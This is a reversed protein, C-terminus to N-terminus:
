ALERTMEKICDLMLAGDNADVAGEPKKGEALAAATAGTSRDFAALWNELHNLRHENVVFGFGGEAIISSLFGRQLATPQKKNHKAEIALFVGGRLALFDSVGTTGYGNMPPMWWFWKHRNLIKRIEKKVDGEDGIIKTTM